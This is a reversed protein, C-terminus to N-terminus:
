SFSLVLSACVNPFMEKFPNSELASLITVLGDEQRKVYKKLERDIYGHLLYLTIDNLHHLFKLSFPASFTHSSGRAVSM